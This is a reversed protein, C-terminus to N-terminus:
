FIAVLQLFNAAASFQLSNNAPKYVVTGWLKPESSFKSIHSWVLEFRFVVHLTSRRPVVTFNSCIDSILWCFAHSLLVLFVVLTQPHCACFSIEYKEFYWPQMRVTWWYQILPNMIKRNLIAFLIKYKKNWVLMEWNILIFYLLSFWKSVLISGNSDVCVLQPLHTYVLPILKYTLLWLGVVFVTFFVRYSLSLGSVFVVVKLFLVLRSM